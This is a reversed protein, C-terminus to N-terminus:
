HHRKLAMILTPHVPIRADVALISAPHGPSPSPHEAARLHRLHQLHQFRGVHRFAFRRSRARRLSFISGRSANSTSLPVNINSAVLDAILPGGNPSGLGTASARGPHNTAVSHFDSPPLAYLTPLTQTAGNLSGKGELTRGQDAIAMIAAWAPTGLSTGGVVQWSGIGTYPSSQYVEVGTNPDGDFAVDPTSRRGSSQANRQYSPEAVTHSQGGGSGSWAVESGYNGAANLYLSTGGVSLVDPSVAPWESGGAMGSDGSAGVFTIGIHGPPTTLVASSHYTSEPFGLSMSIVDVSPLNRAVNVAALLSQLSQSSAEVVVLTAKPAIAHAWEVDLSEEVGWSPNSQLGGLNVVDLPPAPLNFTQDFVQLDSQLTPDHFAEILAITQGTGDGKVAGGPTNFYVSDLGYAHNLVAPTLGSLLCRDDLSDVAPRLNRRLRMRM